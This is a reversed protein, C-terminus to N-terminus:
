IISGSLNRTEPFTFYEGSDRNIVEYSTNNNREQELPGGFDSTASQFLSGLLAPINNEKLANKYSNNELLSGLTHVIGDVGPFLHTFTQPHLADGKQWDV